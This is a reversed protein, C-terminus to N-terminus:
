TELLEEKFNILSIKEKLTLEKFYKRPNGCMWCSCPTATTALTKKSNINLAKSLKKRKEIFVHKMFRRKSRKTANPKELYGVPADQDDYNIIDEQWEKDNETFDDINMEYNKEM